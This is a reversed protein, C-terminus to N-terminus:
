LWLSGGIWSSWGNEFVEYCKWPMRSNLWKHIIGRGGDSGIPKSSFFGKKRTEISDYVSRPLDM